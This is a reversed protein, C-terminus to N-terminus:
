RRVLPGAGPLASGVPHDARPLWATPIGIPLVAGATVPTPVVARADDEARSGLLVRTDLGGAFHPMRGSPRDTASRHRRGLGPRRPVARGDRGCARRRDRGGGGPSSAGIRPIPSRSLAGMTCELAACTEANGLSGTRWGCARAIPPVQPCVGLAAHGPWGLDQITTRPGPQVVVVSVRVETFRLGPGRRSCAPPEREVDSCRQRWAGWSGGAALSATPYIAAYPGAIAVSGAPVATRPPTSGPCM